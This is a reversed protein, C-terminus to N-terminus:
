KSRFGQGPFATQQYTAVPMAGLSNSTLKQRVQQVANESLTWSQFNGGSPFYWVPLTMKALRRAVRVVFYARVRCMSGLTFYLRVIWCRLRSPRYREVWTDIVKGIEKGPDNLNFLLEECEVFYQGEWLDVLYQDAGSERLLGTVEALRVQRSALMSPLFANTIRKEKGRRIFVDPLSDLCKRCSMGQLLVRVHLEADDGYMVKENFGGIAEFAARRWLPSSTHWPPDSRLFRELDDDGELRNWCLSLDGPQREFLMVPFVWLDTKAGEELLAMRQSLCWPAMIDDSDLFVIYDGKAAAAGLNRCRSPGKIGDTRRLVQIRESALKMLSGWESENSGDDVIILEWNVYDQQQISNVTESLLRFRNFHPTVISVLPKIDPM